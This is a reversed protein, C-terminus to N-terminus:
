LLLGDFNFNESKRGPLNFNILKRLDNKLDFALKEEFNPDKKLTM